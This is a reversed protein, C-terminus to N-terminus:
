SEEGQGPGAVAARAPHAPRTQRLAGALHPAAPAGPAGPASAVPPAGERSAASPAPPFVPSETLGRLLSWLVALVSAWCLLEFVVIPPPWWEPSVPRADAFYWPLGGSWYTYVLFAFVGGTAYYLATAATGAAVAWPVLWALYQIGFGPSFALFLFATVACQV